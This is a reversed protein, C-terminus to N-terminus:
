RLAALPTVLAPTAGQASLHAHGIVQDAAVALGAGVAAASAFVVLHGYGWGFSFRATGSEFASRARDVVDEAPQAFYIWWLSAVTLLGGLALAVLAPLEDGADLASQLAMTAALVSEGLVILTFLGYREAIHHPHWT